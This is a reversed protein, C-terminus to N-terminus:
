CELHLDYTALAYCYKLEVLSRVLYRSVGINLLQRHARGAKWLM